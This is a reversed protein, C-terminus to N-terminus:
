GKFMGFIRPNYTIVIAQTPMFNPQPSYKEFQSDVEDNLL